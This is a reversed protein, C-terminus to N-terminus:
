GKDEVPKVGQFGDRMSAQKWKGFAYYFIVAVASIAFSVPFSWWVADLGYEDVFAYALPIRIGWLSIITILLPVIVSGTSRVVGTIVNTIGFIVFSWLTILNIRMGLELAGGSSPLFMLLAERNFCYILVVLEGTLVFNYVIGIWTIKRVRDWRGAGINQAAFSSVAAGLAMAPMQVYSSLNNAATYAAAAVTGYGNILNMLAIASSSVAIMQLGMPMGKRILTWIIEWDFRLLHLESSTIRLFYKVRYLYILILVFSVGQAILTAAASGGIGMAPISGWGFILLPNLLVDLVVSVLLFYFPTKSDGAGRMVTMIYNYGYLFPMSAFIIRTYTIAMDVSEAPTNLVRLIWPSGFFGIIGVALALVLFFIASTGIVRKTETVDGAGVKQGIMITAAMTVGFIASILFFMIINGNSAATLAAEGLFKGVWISNITGNLSQIVNGFLMPLSFLFLTKTIPGETLSPKRSAEAASM